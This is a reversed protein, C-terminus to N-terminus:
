GGDDAPADVHVVTGRGPASAITFSGGIELARSRMSALGFHGEPEAAVMFGVGDDGVDLVVRGDTTAVRIWAESAQAHKIVNGLAERGIAYLEAQVRPSLALPEPPALLEIQLREREPVSHTLETLAAVLGHEVPDRGLEYILGRMESQASRILEGIAALTRGIETPREYGLAKQLARTELLASFLSQSVSDHLDRAIRHREEVARAGEREKSAALLHAGRERESVVASLFLTTAAAVIIYLQTGLTRDDIAQKSFLGLDDATIGITLLALIAVSLTAGPSGFRFAAWILAPFVIYTLPKGSSVALTALTVVSGLMLGGELTCIRRVAARPDRAWTLALPLVVIAGAADGLWWTRWFSGMEDTGIVGGLRMSLTGVTASLATAAGLALLMGAVEDARDLASRRGILRQLLLAGVVVEAMNGLQQGVVSGIPLPTNEFLLESNVLLEGIFIGPWWRLGLLYLAAIGLGVPPWVAAVSGTYRLAQGVKAAGYYAAALAIVGAAYRALRALRAAQDFAPEFAATPAQSSM